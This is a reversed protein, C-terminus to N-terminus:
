GNQRKLTTIQDELFAIRSAARRIAFSAVLLGLGVLVLIASHLNLIHGVAQDRNFWGSSAALALACGGAGGIVLDTIADVGRNKM